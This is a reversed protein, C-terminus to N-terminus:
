FPFEPAESFCLLLLAPMMQTVEKRRRSLFFMEESTEKNLVLERNSISIRRSLRTLVLLAKSKLCSVPRTKQARKFLLSILVQYERCYLPVAFQVQWSRWDLCACIDITESVDDFIPNPDCFTRFLSIFQRDRNAFTFQWASRAWRCGSIKLSLPRPMVHYVFWFYLFRWFTLFLQFNM